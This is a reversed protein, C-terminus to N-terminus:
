PRPPRSAQLTGTAEPQVAVIRCRPALAQVAIAVGVGGGGSAPVVVAGPAPIEACIELGVTAQGAIVLPDDFRAGLVVRGTEAAFSHM